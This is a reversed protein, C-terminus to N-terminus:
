IKFKQELDEIQKVLEPQTNLLEKSQSLEELNKNLMIALKGTMELEGSALMELTNNILDLINVTENKIKEQLNLEVPHEKQKPNNKKIEPAKVKEEPRIYVTNNPNFKNKKNSLDPIDEANIEAFEENTDRHIEGTVPIKKRINRPPTPSEMAKESKIKELKEEISKLTEPSIKGTAAEERLIEEFTKAGKGIPMGKMIEPKPPM